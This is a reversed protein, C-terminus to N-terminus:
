CDPKVLVDARVVIGAAFTGDADRERLLLKWSKADEASHGLSPIVGAAWASTTGRESRWSLVRRALERHEPNPGLSVTTAANLMNVVVIRGEPLCLAGLQRLGEVPDPLHGILRDAIVADFLHAPTYEGLRAQLLQVSGAASGAANVQEHEVRQRAAALMKASSDVGVVIGDTGVSRALHSLHPGTGCGVEVLKMGAIDVIPM